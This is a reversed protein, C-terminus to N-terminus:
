PFSQSNCQRNQERKSSDWLLVMANKNFYAFAELADRVNNTNVPYFRLVNQYNELIRRHDNSSICHLDRLRQLEANTKSLPALQSRLFSISDDTNDATAPSSLTLPWSSLTVIIAYLMHRM